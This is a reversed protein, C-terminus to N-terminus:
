YTAKLMYKTSTSYAGNYGAVKIYYSGSTANNYTLSESTTSGNESKALVTGSSNVLYLDYDGALNTLDVTIKGAATPSIKYYDIDSSSIIYSNYGQGFNIAYAQTITNNPEYTDQATSGIGVAAYASNIASVEASSAGYLDTAAQVLGSKSGTFDTTSTFYNCLARYYIRATKECGISQAVLYAAKNPIGSNTHVGGNDSTTNVYNEM